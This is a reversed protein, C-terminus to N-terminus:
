RRVCLCWESVSLAATIARPQQQETCITTDYMRAHRVQGGAAGLTNVGSGGGRVAAETGAPAAYQKLEMRQRRSAIPQKDGGPTQM